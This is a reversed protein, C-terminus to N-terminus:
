DYNNNNNSSWSHVWNGYGFPAQKESRPHTCCSKESGPLVHPPQPRSGASNACMQYGDGSTFIGMGLTSFTTAGDELGQTEACGFRGPLHTPQQVGGAVPARPSRRSVTGGAGWPAGRFQHAVAQQPWPSKLCGLGKLSM